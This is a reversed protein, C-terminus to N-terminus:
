PLVHQVKWNGGDAKDKWCLLVRIEPYMRAFMKLKVASDDTFWPGKIEFATPGHAEAVAPWDFHFFDPTLTCGNALEFRIAQAYPKPSQHDYWEQELKNLKRATRQRLRKPPKPPPTMVPENDDINFSFMHPNRKQFSASGTPTNM